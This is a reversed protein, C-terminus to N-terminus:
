RLKFVIPTTMYVKVKKGDQMGPTFTLKGIVRKAEANLIPHSSRVIKMDEPKGKENVVFRVITIGELGKRQAEEPYVITEAIKKIMDQENGKSYKPMKEAYFYVGNLDRSDTKQKESKNIYAMDSDNGKTGVRKWLEQWKGEESNINHVVNMLGNGIFKVKIESTTGTKGDQSKEVTEKIISDNVVTYKGESLITSIDKDSKKTMITYRGDNSYIKWTGVFSTQSETENGSPITLQWIGKINKVTGSQSFSAAPSLAVVAFATINRLLTKMSVM